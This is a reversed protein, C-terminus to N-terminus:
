LGLELAFRPARGVWRRYCWLGRRSPPEPTMWEQGRPGSVDNQQRGEQCPRWTARDGWWAGGTPRLGKGTSFRRSELLVGAKLELCARVKQLLLWRHVAGPHQRDAQDKSDPERGFRDGAALFLLGIVFLRLVQGPFHSGSALFPEVPERLVL